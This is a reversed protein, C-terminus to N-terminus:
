VIERLLQFSSRRSLFYFIFFLYSSFLLVSFSHSIYLLCHKNKKTIIIYYKFILSITGSLGMLDGIVSAL